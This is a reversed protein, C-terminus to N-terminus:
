SNAFKFMAMSLSNEWLMTPRDMNKKYRKGSVDPELLNATAPGFFPTEWTGSTLRLLEYQLNGLIRIGGFDDMQIRQKDTNGNDDMLM